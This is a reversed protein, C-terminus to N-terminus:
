FKAPDAVAPVEGVAYPPQPTPHLLRGAPPLSLCVEACVRPQGVQRRQWAEKGEFGVAM